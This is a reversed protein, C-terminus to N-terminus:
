IVGRARWHGLVEFRPYLVHTMPPLPSQLAVETPLRTFQLVSIGWNIELSFTPIDNILKNSARLHLGLCGSADYPM